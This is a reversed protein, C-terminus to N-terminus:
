TRGAPKLKPEVTEVDLKTNKCGNTSRNSCVSHVLALYRTEGCPSGPLLPSFHLSPRVGFHVTYFFTQSEQRGCLCVRVSIRQYPPPASIVALWHKGPSLVPRWKTADLLTQLSFLLVIKQRHEARPASFSWATPDICRDLQLSAALPSALKSWDVADISVTVKSGKCLCVWQLTIVSYLHCTVATLDCCNNQRIGVIPKYFQTVAPNLTVKLWHVWMDQATEAGCGVVTTQLSVSLSIFARFM